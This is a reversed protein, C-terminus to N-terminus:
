ASVKVERGFHVDVKIGASHLLATPLEGGIQVCLMDCDLELQSGKQVVTLSRGNLATPDTERLVILRGSSELDEVSKRNAARARNFAEGRYVLSVSSAGAGVLRIAAELASDGGGVVVCDQDKWPDPDPLSYIVNAQSEGPIGLRRPSGRRGIALLVKHSHHECFSEGQKARTLFTDGKKEISQVLMGSVIDLGRRIVVDDLLAMLEEKRVERLTFPEEGPLCMPQTMVLKNRPYHRVAGGHGYQDLLQCSLGLEKARLAAAIGAPGAGIVLLDTMTTDRKAALSRAVAEAAQRGQTVANRILGMGGLEGAIFLGSVNTQFDASLRPIDVGRRATGFVLDIASVPCAAECAGHGICATPNVLHAKNGALGLIMKEPCATVCAGSGICRDPRIVPHLSPPETLGAEQNDRMVRMVLQEKRRIRILYIAVIILCLLLAGGYVILTEM